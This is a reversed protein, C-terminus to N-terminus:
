YFLLIYNFCFIFFGDINLSNMWMRFVREERSDGVDITNNNDVDIFFKVKENNENDTLSLGHLTNFLQAVFSVNLKKNGDCIDKASLFVNAGITKANNIVVTARTIPDSDFVLYCKKSDLQHLVVSYM